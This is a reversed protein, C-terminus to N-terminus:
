FVQQWAAAATRGYLGTGTANTNWLHDGPLPVLRAPPAGANAGLDLKAESCDISISPTEFSLLALKGAPHYLGRGVIRHTGTGGFQFLNNALAEANIGSFRINHDVSATGSSTFGSGAKGAAEITLGDIDIEVPTSSQSLNRYLSSCQGTTSSLGKIWIHKIVSTTTSAFILEGYYNSGSGNGSFEIGNLRLNNVVGAASVVFVWGSNGATLRSNNVSINNITSGINFVASTHYQEDNMDNVIFNDVDSSINAYAVTSGAANNEFSGLQLFNITSFGQINFTTQTTGVPTTDLHKIELRKMTGGSAGSQTDGAVAQGIGTISDIIVTGNDYGTECFTKFFSTESEGRISGVRLLGNSGSGSPCATDGWFSGQAIVGWALVDDTMSNGRVVGIEINDCNSEAQIGVHGNDAYFRPIYIEGCNYLALTRVIGNDARIVDASSNGMNLFLISNGQFQDNDNAARNCDIDVNKLHINTNGLLQATGTATENIGTNNYDWGTSSVGIVVQMGNFSNTGGLGAVYVHDGIRRGHNAGLVTVVNAARTFNSGVLPNYNSIFIRDNAANTPSVGTAAFTWTNGSVGTVTKVGNLTTNGLANEIYVDTGIVKTHGKETVTAVSGSVVVQTGKLANQADRNKLLVCDSGNALKLKGGNWDFTTNTYLELSKSVSYTKTSDLRATGGFLKAAKLASQIATSEDKGNGVAGFCSVDFFLSDRSFGAELVSAGM